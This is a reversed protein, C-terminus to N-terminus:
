ETDMLDILGDEPEDNEDILNLVSQELSRSEQSGLKKELDKLYQNINRM